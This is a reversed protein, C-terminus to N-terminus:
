WSCWEAGYIGMLGVAHLLRRIWLPIAAASDRNAVMPGCPSTPPSPPLHLLDLLTAYYALLGKSVDVGLLAELIRWMTRISAYHM